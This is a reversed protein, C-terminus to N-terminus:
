GVFKLGACSSAVSVYDNENPVEYESTEANIIFCLRATVPSTKKRGM